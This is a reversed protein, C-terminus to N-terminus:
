LIDWASSSEKNDSAPRAFPRATNQAIDKDQMYQLVTTFSTPKLKGTHSNIERLKM